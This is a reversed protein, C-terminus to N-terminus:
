RSVGLRANISGRAREALDVVREHFDTAVPALGRATLMGTVIDDVWHPNLSLAPGGLRTAMLTGSILGEVAPYDGSATDISWLAQV